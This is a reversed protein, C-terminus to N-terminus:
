GSAGPRTTRHKRRFRRNAIRALPSSSGHDLSLCSLSVLQNDRPGSCFARSCWLEDGSGKSPTGNISSSAIDMRSPFALGPAADCAQSVAATRVTIASCGDEGPTRVRQGAAFGAKVRRSTTSRNGAGAALPAVAISPTPATACGQQTPQDPWGSAVHASGVQSWRSPGRRSRHISRRM